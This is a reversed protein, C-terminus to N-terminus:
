CLERWHARVIDILPQALDAAALPTASIGREARGAWWDPLHDRYVIGYLTRDLQPEAYLYAPADDPEPEPEPV